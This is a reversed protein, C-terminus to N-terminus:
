GRAWLLLGVGLLALGGLIMPNGFDLGPTSSAAMWDYGSDTVAESDSSVPAFGPSVASDLGASALVSEAYSQAASSVTGRAVNTPGGNYAELATQWDGFRSFLTSLYRVGGEINGSVSYPDVGFDAATGPQLQFVGIEGASGRAAQNLGSEKQAVALALAPPVNFRAANSSILDTVLTGLGRLRVGQLGEAIRGLPGYRSIPATLVYAMVLILRAAM